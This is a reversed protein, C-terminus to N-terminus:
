LVMVGFCTSFFVFFCRATVQGATANNKSDGDRLVVAVSESHKLTSYPKATDAIQCSSLLVFQMQCMGSCLRCTNHAVNPENM